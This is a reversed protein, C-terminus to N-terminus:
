SNWFGVFNLIDLFLISLIVGLDVLLKVVKGNVLVYLFMGVEGVKYIVGFRGVFSKINLKNFKFLGNKM